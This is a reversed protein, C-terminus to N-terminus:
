KRKRQIEDTKRAVMLHWLMEKSARSREVQSNFREILMHAERLKAQLAQLRPDDFLSHFPKGVVVPTHLLRRLTVILFDVADLDDLAPPAAPPGIPVAVAVAIAVAVSPWPTSWRAFDSALVPLNKSPAAARRDLAAHLADLERGMRAARELSLDREVRLADAEDRALQLLDPEPETSVETALETELENRTHRLADPERLSALEAELARVRADREALLRAVAAADAVLREAQDLVAQEAATPVSERRNNHPIPEIGQGLRVSRERAENFSARRREAEGRFGALWRDLKGGGGDNGDADGSSDKAANV